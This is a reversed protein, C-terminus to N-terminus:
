LHPPLVPQGCEECSESFPSVRHGNPRNWAQDHKNARLASEFIAAALLFPVLLLASIGRLEAIAGASLSGPGAAVILVGNLLANAIVLYILKQAWAPCGRLATKWVGGQRIGRLLQYMVLMSVPFLVGVGLFVALVLVPLRLFWGVAAIPDIWAAVHFVFSISLGLLTLQSLIYLLPRAWSPM